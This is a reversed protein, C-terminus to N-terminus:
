IDYQKRLLFIANEIEAIQEGTAFSKDAVWAALADVYGFYRTLVEINEKYERLLEQMM